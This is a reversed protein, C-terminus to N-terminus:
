YPCLVLEALRNTRVSDAKEVREGDCALPVFRTVVTCVSGATRNEAVCLIIPLLRWFLM